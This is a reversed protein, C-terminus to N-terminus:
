AHNIITMGEGRYKTVLEGKIRAAEEASINWAAFAQVFGDFKGTKLWRQFAMHDQDTMEKPKKNALDSLNARVNGQFFHVFIQNDRRITGVSMDGWTGALKQADELALRKQRLADTKSKMEPVAVKIKVGKAKFLSM